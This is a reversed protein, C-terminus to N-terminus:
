ESGSAELEAVKSELSNIKVILAKIGATNLAVIPMQDVTLVDEMAGIKDKTNVL